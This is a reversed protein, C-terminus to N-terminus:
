SKGTVIIATWDFCIEGDRNFNEAAKLVASKVEEFIESPAANLVQMVPGAIDSMVDWYEEASDFTTEGKIAYEKVARFGATTLSESTFGPKACRFIGPSDAPPKPLDLKQQVIGALTSIFPNLEPAAWVATALIAGPKMVRLIEQLAANIDPFFMIGFRCIVADFMDDDFPLDAANCARSRYNDIGRQNAHENAIKVM